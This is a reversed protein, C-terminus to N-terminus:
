IVAASGHGDFRIYYADSDKISEALYNFRPYLNNTKVVHINDKLRVAVEVIEIEVHTANM